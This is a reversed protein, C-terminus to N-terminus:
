LKPAKIDLPENYNTYITTVHYSNEKDDIIMSLRRVVTGLNSDDSIWVDIPYKSQIQIHITSEDGIEEKGVFAASGQATADLDPSLPTTVFLSLQVSLNDPDKVWGNGTNIFSTKNAFIHDSQKGDIREVTFSVVGVGFDGEIYARNGKIEVETQAHYSTARRSNEFAEKLLTKADTQTNLRKTVPTVAKKPTSARSGNFTWFAITLLIALVSAIQLIRSM